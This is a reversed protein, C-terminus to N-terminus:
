GTFVRLAQKAAEQEAQKKSHGSGRGYERDQFTVAAVFQKNHDPGEESVIQYRVTEKFRKQVQEQLETKFDANGLSNKAGDLRNRFIEQIVREVEGIGKTERSDLYVAAFLAELTDSLISAKDRGGSNEEGKGMRICPGIALDKAVEALSAESVLIARVKSLDGESLDTFTEMLLDSIVLDLVADGLFELRENHGGSTEPNENDYSKHTLALFLLSVDDFQYNFHGLMTELWTDIDKQTRNEM